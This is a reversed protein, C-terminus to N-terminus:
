HKGDDARKARARIWDSVISRSVEEPHNPDFFIEALESPNPRAEGKPRREKLLLDVCEAFVRFAFADDAWRGYYRATEDAVFVIADLLERTQPPVKEAEFSWELRTRIEEGMGRQGGVRRLREQLEAPLRVAFPLTGDENKRKTKLCM